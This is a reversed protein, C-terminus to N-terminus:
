EDTIVARGCRVASPYNPKGDWFVVLHGGAECVVPSTHPWLDVARELLDVGQVAAVGVLVLGLAGALAPRV